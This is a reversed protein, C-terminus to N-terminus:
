RRKECVRKNGYFILDVGPYIEQYAVQSYNTIEKQWKSNDQGLLYNTKTLLQNNGVVKVENNAGVFELSLNTDKKHNSVLIAKNNTLLLNYDFGHSIFKVSPDVQGINTEFGLPLQGYIKDLKSGTLLTPPKNINEQINPPTPMKNAQQFYTILSSASVLIIFIIALRNFLNSRSFM